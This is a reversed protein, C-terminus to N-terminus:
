TEQGYKQQIVEIERRENIQLYEKHIRKLFGKISFTHQLYRYSAKKVRYHRKIFNKKIYDLKDTNEKM